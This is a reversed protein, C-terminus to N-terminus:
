IGLLDQFSKSCPYYAPTNLTSCNYVGDVKRVRISDGSPTQLEAWDPNGMERIIFFYSAGPVVRKVKYSVRVSSQGPVAWKRSDVEIVDSSVPKAHFLVEEYASVQYVKAQHHTNIIAVSSPYAKEHMRSPDNYSHPQYVTKGDLAMFLTDDNKPNTAIFFYSYIPNLPKIVRYPVTVEGHAPVTVEAYGYNDKGGEMSRADAVQIDEGADEADYLKERMAMVKYTAADGTLNRLTLSHSKADGPKGIAISYSAANDDAAFALGTSLALGVALASKTFKSLKM